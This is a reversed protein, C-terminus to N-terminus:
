WTRAEGKLCSSGIAGDRARTTRVPRAVVTGNVATMVPGSRVAVSLAAPPTVEVTM